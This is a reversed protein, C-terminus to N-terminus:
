GLEVGMTHRPYGIAEIRGIAVTIGGVKLTDEGDCEVMDCCRVHM